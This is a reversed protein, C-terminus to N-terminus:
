HRTYRKKPNIRTSIPQPSAFFEGQGGRIGNDLLAQWEQKTLVSAAFVKVNTGECAGTLSRLFLQNEVRRDINRVLGPHLKVIEVQLTKIYSTSVVTLGAQAVAIRCGLVQLFRTVPRLREIHQCVDAEALEFLIRQRQSKELQMLEDRLWILFSHRLLADVSVAVALTETPWLSLLPFVKSLVQRDFREALGFQEVLPLFEAPLLVQGEDFIRTMIERHHLQGEVTIAPKQYLEPGGHSLSKELISRWKVSGRRMEPVSDDYVCWTNNGQLGANRAAQEAYEIIQEPTLGSRYLCIGIHLFSDKDFDFKLPLTDVAKVLQAALSDADKLSCHPLLVAFDNNYYRALLAAPYRLVFTSFMNVLSYLLEDVAATGHSDRLIEFDPLRIMMVVGHVGPEELITALQNDFFLRNNLGTQVDLSAFARILTDVRSREERSEQLESLLLDLAGSAAYPWERIDGQIVDEREGSLIRRARLELLEVGKSQERIWRLGLLLLIIILFIALTIGATSGLTQTYVFLPEVYELSIFSGPHQLMPLEIEHTLKASQIPHYESRRDYDYVAVGNSRHISFRLIGTTRMLQPLWQNLSEVPQGVLSQDVTTAIAEWRALTKDHVAQYFSMIAGTLTLLTALM